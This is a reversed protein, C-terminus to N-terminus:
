YRISEEIQVRRVNRSGMGCERQTQCLTWLPFQSNIYVSKEELEGAVLGPAEGAIGTPPLGDDSWNALRSEVRSSSGMGGTGMLMEISSTLIPNTGEVGATGPTQVGPPAIGGPTM